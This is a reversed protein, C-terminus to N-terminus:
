KFLWLLKGMRRPYYILAKLAGCGHRRKMWEVSPFTDGALYRIRYRPPISFFHERYIERQQGSSKGGKKTIMEETLHPAADPNLLWLDVFLRLQFDDTLNHYDYHKKLYDLHIDDPLTFAKTGEINIEVANEIAEDLKENRVAESFLRHHIEVAYGDKRLTPMHKGIHTKIKRHLPSKITDPEFGHEQLILWSKMVDEKRVLIDTDSMQRLGKSGYITHELAMGKLLLHKIGAGSLIAGVKKWQSLQWTNRILSQKWGNDLITMADSPIRSELGAEKINYAALAIIGHANILEVLWRWDRVEGVLREITDKDEERFPYRCLLLLLEKLDSYSIDTGPM